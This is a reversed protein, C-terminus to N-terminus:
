CRGGRKIQLSDIIAEITLRLSGSSAAPLVVGVYFVRGHDRFSLVKGTTWDNDSRRLKALEFHPARLQYQSLDSPKLLPPLYEVVQVDVGSTHGPVLAFCVGPDTVVTPVGTTLLWGTPYRVVVGESASRFSKTLTIPPDGVRAGTGATVMTLVGLSGIM